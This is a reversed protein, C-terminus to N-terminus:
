EAIKMKYGRVGGELVDGDLCGIHVVRIREPYELVLFGRFIEPMYQAPTLNAHIYVVASDNYVGFLMESRAGTNNRLSVVQCVYIYGEAVATTYVAYSGDGEKTGGLNEYWVDSFGWLLPLKRWAAGDWGYSMGAGSIPM